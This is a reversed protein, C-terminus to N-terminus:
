ETMINNKAVIGYLGDLKKTLDNIEDATGEVAVTILGACNEVCSRRVNVGIRAMVLHGHETLIRQVDNAHAQRDKVLITITALHKKNSM